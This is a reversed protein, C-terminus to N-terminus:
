GFLPSLSEQEIIQQLNIGAHKPELVRRIELRDKGKQWEQSALNVITRVPQPNKDADTCLLVLPRLRTKSTTAIVVGLHGQNLEVVSGVPYLGICSIFEEVLSRDFDAQSSKYIDQMALYPTIGARYCRDSTMADYVDVLAVIKTLFNIEDGKLGDPYGGGSNREHHHLVIDLAEAPPIDNKQLLKNGLGPHTKVLTWEEATLPGPKNLIEAPLLMNGVDHLLAGLGLAGLQSDSLKLHHGFRLALISVNLAHTQAYHERDKLFTLWTIANANVKVDTNIQAITAAVEKVNVTASPKNVSYQTLKGILLRSNNYTKRALHLSERYKNGETGITEKKLPAYVQRTFIQEAQVGPSLQNRVQPSSQQPDIYVFKCVSRVKTIDQPTELLFGQFMFPSELWPIDLEVIFMGECLDAVEVRVSM